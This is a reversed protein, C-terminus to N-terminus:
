IGSSELVPSVFCDKCTPEENGDIDDPVLGSGCPCFVKEFDCGREHMEEFEVLHRDLNQKTSFIGRCSYKEGDNIFNLEQEYCDLAEKILVLKARIQNKLIPYRM